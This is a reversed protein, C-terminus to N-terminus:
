ASSRIIGVLTALGAQSATIATISAAYDSRRWFPSFNTPPASDAPRSDRSADNRGLRAGQDGSRCALLGPHDRRARISAYRTHGGARRHRCLFRDLDSRRLDAAVMGHSLLWDSLDALVKM